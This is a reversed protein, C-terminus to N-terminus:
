NNYEMHLEPALTHVKEPESYGKDDFKVKQGPTLEHKKAVPKLPFL